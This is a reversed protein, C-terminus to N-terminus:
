YYFGKARCDNKVTFARDQAKFDLMDIKKEKLTAGDFVIFEDCTQKNVDAKVAEFLEIHKSAAEEKTISRVEKRMEQIQEKQEKTAASVGFSLMFIPLVAVLYKKM